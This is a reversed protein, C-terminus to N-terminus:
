ERIFPKDQEPIGDTDTVFREVSMHLDYKERLRLIQQMLPSRHHRDLAAQSDWSDILLVSEGGTLPLYYDYRLNGEGARIADAIGSDTMERAFRLASGGVGTYTVHITIAM